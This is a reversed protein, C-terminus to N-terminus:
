LRREREGNQILNLTKLIFYMNWTELWYASCNKHHQGSNTSKTIVRIESFSIHDSPNRIPHLPCIGHTVPTTRTRLLLSWLNKGNLQLDAAERFLILAACENGLARASWLSQMSQSGLTWRSRLTLILELPHETSWLSRKQHHNSCILVRSYFGPAEIGEIRSQRLNYLLYWSKSM